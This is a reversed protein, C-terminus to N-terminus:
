ISYLPGTYLGVISDSVKIIGTVSPQVTLPQTKQLIYLSTSKPHQRQCRNFFKEAVSIFM